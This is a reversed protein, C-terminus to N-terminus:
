QLNTAIPDDTANGPSQRPLCSNQLNHSAKRKCHVKKCSCIYELDYSYTADWSGLCAMVFM